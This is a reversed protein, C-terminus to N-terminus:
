IISGIWHISEPIIQVMKAIPIAFSNKHFDSGVGAFSSEGIFLVKLTTASNINVSGEPEKAEPLFQIEKKIKKGQFYIIPLLPISKLLHIFYNKRM